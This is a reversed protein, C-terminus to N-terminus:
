KEDGNINAIACDKEDCIIVLTITKTNLSLIKQKLVEHVKARPASAYPDKPAATATTALLLLPIVIRIM